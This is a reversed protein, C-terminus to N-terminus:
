KNNNGKSIFIEYYYIVYGVLIIKWWSIDRLIYVCLIVYYFRSVSMSLLEGLSCIRFSILM